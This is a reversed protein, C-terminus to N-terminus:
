HKKTISPDQRHSVLVRGSVNGLWRLEKISAEHTLASHSLWQELVGGLNWLVCQTLCWVLIICAGLSM